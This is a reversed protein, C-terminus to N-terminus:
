GCGAASKKYLFFKHIQLQPPSLDKYISIEIGFPTAFMLMDEESNITIKDGIIPIMKKEINMRLRLWNPRELIKEEIIDSM